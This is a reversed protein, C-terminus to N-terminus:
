GSRPPRPRERCSQMSKTLSELRSLAFSEVCKGMAEEESVGKGKGVLRGDNLDTGEETSTDKLSVEVVWGESEQRKRVEASRKGPRPSDNLWDLLPRMSPLQELDSKSVPTGSPDASSSKHAFPRSHLTPFLFHDHHLPRNSVPNILRLPSSPPRKLLGSRTLTTCSTRLASRLVSLM